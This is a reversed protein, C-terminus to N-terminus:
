VRVCVGRVVVCMYVFLCVFKLVHVGLFVCACACVCVFLVRVCVCECVGVSARVCALMACATIECVVCAYMNELNSSHFHNTLLTM